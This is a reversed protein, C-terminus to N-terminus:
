LKNILVEQPSAYILLCEKVRYGMDQLAERYLSMQRNNEDRPSGTKYDLISLSGDLNFNIRDPRLIEGNQSLLSRENEVKDYHVFYSTLEPHTIVSRAIQAIQRNFPDDRQTIFDKLTTEAQNLSDIRALLDHLANGTRLAEDREEFWQIAEMGAVKLAMREPFNLPYDPIIPKSISSTVSQKPPATSGFTYDSPSDKWKGQSVLFSALLANFSTPNDIKAPKPQRCMVYLRDEARTCAVYLLNINDLELTNKREQYIEKAMPGYNPFEDKRISLLAEQFHDDLGSINLWTKARTDRYLDEDAFPYIVVPFELGKAKHITMINVAEIDGPISIAAGERKQEWLDLFERGKKPKDEFDFLMNMFGSLCADALQGLGLADLTYECSEYLSLLEMKKLELSSDLRSLGKELSIRNGARCNELFDHLKEDIERQKHLYCLLRVVVEEQYPERMYRIMDVLFCVLPSHSILLTESSVVPLNNEMLAGALVTGQDKKRTLICIDNFRYGSSILEKILAVTREAYVVNDEEKSDSEVFSLQVYGGEKATAKQRNGIRYLEQHTTDTFTTALYSFFANNFAIVEQKSRWNTELNETVKDAFNFLTNDTYLAIFQEPVGGRWRYISQKADGVLMLSGPKKDEYEQSLANEILPILNQWQLVSTDQFEDIFFHRYRDGLREYIYPAPQNRIEKHIRENFEAIPLINEEQCIQEIEERVLNIVSLPTINSLINELFWLRTLLATTEELCTAFRDQMQDLTAATGPHSTAFKKSYLSGERINKQWATGLNPRFDKGILKEFFRPYYKGSFGETPIQNEEMLSFVTEAMRTIQSRLSKATGSLRSQFGAFDKLTKGKLLAVHPRDNERFLIKSAETIDKTIDWSRDDDAKQMSFDVLTRTIDAKTGAKEILRDVARLLLDDTDLNVEFNSAIKLDRAFTRILRHNFGDITEVSFGAYHHLLHYLVNQARHILQEDSLDLVKKLHDMMEHRRENGTYTAIATLYSIIRSKMEAVAKNTFTIALMNRYTDPVPKRLLEELYAGVLSYTKGSGASANYVKFIPKQGNSLM